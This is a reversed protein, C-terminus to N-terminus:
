MKTNIPPSFIKLLMLPLRGGCGLREVRRRGIWDVLLGYFLTSVGYPILYAPVALRDDTRLRRVSVGLAPDDACGHLGSLLNRGPPSRNSAATPKVEAM